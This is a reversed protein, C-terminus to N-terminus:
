EENGGEILEFALGDCVFSPDGVADVVSYLAGSGICTVWWQGHEFAVDVGDSAAEGHLLGFIEEIENPDFERDSSKLYM